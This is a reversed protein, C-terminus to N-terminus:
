KPGKAENTQQSKKKFYQFIQGSANMSGKAAVRQCSINSHSIESFVLRANKSKAWLLRANLIDEGMRMKRYQPKVYLSHLRGVNNVLSLWGLGAIEENLKVMFCKDGNKLAVTVWKRNIGPHTLAMFRDVEETQNVEAMSIEFNFKHEELNQLDITYIDYAENEIGTKVEAFVYNFPKLAYFCDFVEQSKTYISAAKEFPDYLFLGSVLGQPSRSAYAEGGIELIEKTFYLLFPQFFSLEELLNLDSADHIESIDM